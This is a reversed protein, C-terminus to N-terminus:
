RYPIRRVRGHIVKLTLHARKLQFMCWEALWRISLFIKQHLGKEVESDPIPLVITPNVPMPTSTGTANVGMNQLEVDVRIEEQRAKVGVDKLEISIEPTTTKESYYTEPQRTPVNEKHATGVQTVPQNNNKKTQDDM